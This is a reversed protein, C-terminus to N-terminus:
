ALLLCVVSELMAVSVGRGGGGGWVCVFACRIVHLSLGRARVFVRM